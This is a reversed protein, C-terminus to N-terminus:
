GGGVLEMIDISDILVTDSESLLTNLGNMMKISHENVIVVMNPSLDETEHVFMLRRMELGFRTSLLQLLDRISQNEAPVEIQDVDAAKRFRGHLKVLITM